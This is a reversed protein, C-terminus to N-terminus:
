LWGGGKQLEQVQRRYIQNESYIDQYLLDGQANMEIIMPKGSKTLLIDFGVSSLGDFLAAARGCLVTIKELEETSLALDELSLPLNNLHLNTMAGSRTGRPLLFDLRGFQYVARLDYTIGGQAAKPIWREVIAGESLLFDAMKQIAGADVLLRIKKTNFYEGDRELMATQAMYSRRQPHLKLAMLGAAGSGFNPKIFVQFIRKARLWETLDEFNSGGHDLLPTADIGAAQLREKCEQKNLAIGIATPTNLFCASKEESWRSIQELKQYYIEIKSPMAAIRSDTWKPPDLKIRDGSRIAALGKEWETDIDLFCLEAGESRCAKEFYLQRKSGSQGFLLIRM